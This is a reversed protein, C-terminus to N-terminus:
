IEISFFFFFISLRRKGSNEACAALL